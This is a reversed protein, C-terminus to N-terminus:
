LFEGVVGKKVEINQLQENIHQTNKEEETLHVTLYQLRELMRDQVWAAGCHVASKHFKEIQM